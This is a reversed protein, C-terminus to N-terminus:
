IVLLPLSGLLGGAMFEALRISDGEYGSIRIYYAIKYSISFLIAYILGITLSFILNFEGIYWAFLITTPMFLYFGVLSMGIFDRLANPIISGDNNLKERLSPIVNLIYRLLENDKVTSYGQDM